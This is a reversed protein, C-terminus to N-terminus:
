VEDYRPYGLEYFWQITHRAADAACKSSIGRANSLQSEVDEGTFLPM